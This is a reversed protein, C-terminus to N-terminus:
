SMSVSRQATATVEAVLSPNLNAHSNKNDLLLDRLELYKQELRAADNNLMKKKKGANKYSSLPRRPSRSKRHLDRNQSAKQDDADSNRSNPSLLDSASDSSKRERVNVKVKIIDEPSRPALDKDDKQHDDQITSPRAPPQYSLWPVVEEQDDSKSTDSDTNEVISKLFDMDRSRPTGRASSM